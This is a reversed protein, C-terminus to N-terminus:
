RKSLTIAILRWDVLIDQPIEKEQAEGTFFKKLKGQTYKLVLEDLKAVGCSTILFVVHSEKLKVVRVQTTNTLKQLDKISSLDAETIPSLIEKGDELWVIRRSFTTMGSNLEIPALQPRSIATDGDVSPDPYVGVLPVRDSETLTVEKTQVEYDPLAPKAPEDGIEAFKSFGFQKNPLSLITPDDLADRAEQELLFRNTDSRPMIVFSHDDEDVADADNSTEIRFLGVMLFALFGVTLVAMFFVPKPKQNKM